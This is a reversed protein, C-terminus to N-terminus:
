EEIYNRILEFANPSEYSIKNFEKATINFCDDVKVPYRIKDSETVVFNGNSLNVLYVYDTADPSPMNVLMVISNDHICRFKQGIHYTKQTDFKNEYKIKYNKAILEFYEQGGDCILDFEEETINEDDKVVVPINSPHIWYCGDTIDTLFVANHSGKLPCFALMFIHNRCRHKDIDGIFKFKQSVHYTKKTIDDSM